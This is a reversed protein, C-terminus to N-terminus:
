IKNGCNACFVDGSDLKEGCNGCFKAGNSKNNKPKNESPEKVSEQKSESNRSNNNNNNNTKQPNEGLSNDYTSKDFALISFGILPLFLLLLSFAGSKGFKKSLSVFAMIEFVFFVIPGVCPILYFFIYAGPYGSIEFLVWKNYIPIFAEWGYRGAKKFIFYNVIARYIWSVLGVFLCIFLM